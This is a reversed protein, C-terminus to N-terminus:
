RAGSAPRATRRRRKGFAAPPPAGGVTFSWWTGGDAETTGGANQARVQWYYTGNALGSQALTTAAGASRWTTGCASDNTTDM